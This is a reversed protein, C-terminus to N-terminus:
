PHGNNIRMAKFYLSEGGQVNTFIALFLIMVLLIVIWYLCRFFDKDNAM